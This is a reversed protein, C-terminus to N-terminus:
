KKNEEIKSLASNSAFDINNKISQLDSTLPEAMPKNLNLIRDLERKSFLVKPESYKLNFSM